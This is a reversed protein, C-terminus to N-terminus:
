RVSREFVGAPSSAFSGWADVDAPPSPHCASSMSCFSIDPEPECSSSGESDTAFCMSQTYPTTQYPATYRLTTTLFLLHLICMVFIVLWYWQHMDHYLQHYLLKHEQTVIIPILSPETTSHHVWSQFSKPKHGPLLPPLINKKQTLKKHQSKNRYGNWGWTVATACLLDWDNQWFHLQCTVASCVHMRCNRSCIFHCRLSTCLQITYESSTSLHCCNWTNWCHWLWIAAVVKIPM